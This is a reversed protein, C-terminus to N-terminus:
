TTQWGNRQSLSQLPVVKWCVLLAKAQNKKFDEPFRGLFRGQRKANGTPNRLTNGEKSVNCRSAFAECWGSPENQFKRAVLSCAGRYCCILLWYVTAPHAPHQSQVGAHALPLGAACPAFPANPGSSDLADIPQRSPPSQLGSLNQLSSGQSQAHHSPYLSSKEYIILVTYTLLLISFGM